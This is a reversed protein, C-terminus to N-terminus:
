KKEKDAARQEAGADRSRYLWRVYIGLMIVAVVLLAISLQWDQGNSDTYTTLALILPFIIAVV